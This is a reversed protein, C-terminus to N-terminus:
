LNKDLLDIAKEFGLDIKGPDKGGGEVKGERGGGKGSIAATFVDSIKVASYGKAVLDPTVVALFIVRGSLNSALLLVCSKVEKQVADSFSRLMEMSYGKFDRLLVKIERVTRMEAAYAAAEGVVKKLKLDNIEKEARAIRENLWDVRGQLHELFKTVNRSDQNDVANQLSELETFEIEFIRTETFKKGGQQEKDIELLRYKRLQEAVADSLAKAKFIVQIRAAEGAVAEIRRIGAGLAGESLVKFFLIDGTSSAHTGGCLELSYDGVKLIRVKDGYKEGFLAVAGMKIADAYSKQLTEVKLKEKIKRNVLEEVRALEEHSLAQSHNFDFRLKDPGVYSGAQKVHEGLVEKLAKHLLHTATHHIRTANRKSSDVMARVPMKEKIGSADELLHVIVGKGAMLTDIV